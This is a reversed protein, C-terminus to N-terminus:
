GEVRVGLKRLAARIAAESGESMGVEYAAVVGERDILVLTPIADVKFQKRALKDKGDFLSPWEYGFEKLFDRAKEPTEDDNVGLVVVGQERTQEYLKALGPMQKRCPECWTAWFDLVVIKGRLDALKVTEGTLAPLSLEPAAKGILDKAPRPFARELRDTERYSGPPTYAFLGDAVPNNITAVRFRTTHRTTTEDYPRDPYQRGRVLSEEKLVVLRDRDIWFTKVWSDIGTMGPQPAYDARVMVCEVARGDLNVREKGTEEARALDDTLRKTMFNLALQARRLSMEAVPGGGKMVLVPGAVATQMFERTDPAARWLTKGDTVAVFSGSLDNVEYRLREPGDKALVEFSKRWSRGTESSMDSEIASEFHFREAGRLAEAVQRLLPAGDTPEGWLRCAAALFLLTRV